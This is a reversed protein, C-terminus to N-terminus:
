FDSETPLSSFSAFTHRKLQEAGRNIATYSCTIGGRQWYPHTCILHICLEHKKSKKNSNKQKCCVYQRLIDRSGCFQIMHSDNIPIYCYWFRSIYMYWSIYMTRYKNHLSMSFHTMPTFRVKFTVTHAAKEIQILSSFAFSSPWIHALYALPQKKQWM